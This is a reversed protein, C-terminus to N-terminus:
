KPIKNNTAAVEKAIQDNYFLLAVHIYWARNFPKKRARNMAMLADPNSKMVETMAKINIPIGHYYYKDKESFISDSKVKASERLKNKFSVLSDYETKLIPNIQEPLICKVKKILRKLSHYNDLYSDGAGRGSAILHQDKINYFLVKKEKIDLVLMKCCVYGDPSTHYGNYHYNLINTILFYRKKYTHLLACLEDPIDLENVKKDFLKKELKELEVVVLDKQNENLKTIFFHVKYKLLNEVPWQFYYLYHPIKSFWDYKIPNFKNMENRISIIDLTAPPNNLSIERFFPEIVMLTDKSNLTISPQIKQTKDIRSNFLKCSQFLLVTISLFIIKQQIGIM